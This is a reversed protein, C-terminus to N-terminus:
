ASVRLVVHAANRYFNRLQARLRQLGHFGDEVSLRKMYESAVAPDITPNPHTRWDSSDYGLLDMYPKYIPGFLAVDQELFWNQWDGYSKTRARVQHAPPLKVDPRVGRGLYASLGAFDQDMLDEYRVVFWDASLGRVFSCMRAYRAQETAVLQEITQPGGPEGSFRYIEHFAVSRPDREKQQVLPLCARFQRRIKGHRAHWRYLAASVANDRPDRAIWIKKDYKEVAAHWLLSDFSRGKEENYTFKCVLSDHAGPHASKRSRVHRHFGGVVRRCEPFAEGIMHLLITTGSKGKGLVLIKMSDGAHGGVRRTDQAAM